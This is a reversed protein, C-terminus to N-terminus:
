STSATAKSLVAAPQHDPPADHHHQPEAYFSLGIVSLLTIVFGAGARTLFDRRSTATVHHPENISM